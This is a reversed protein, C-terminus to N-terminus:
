RTLAFVIGAMLILAAGALLRKRGICDAPTTIWLSILMDGNLTLTLLLGIQPTSFGASHLYLVLVVSLFGYAFLRAIRTAFLLRGDRTLSQV